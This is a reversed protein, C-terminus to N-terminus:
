YYSLRMDGKHSLYEKRPNAFGMGLYKLAGLDKIEFEPKLFSKLKNLENVNDGTLVEQKEPRTPLIAM